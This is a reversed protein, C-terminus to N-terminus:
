VKPFVELIKKYAEEAWVIIGRPMSLALIVFVLGYIINAITSWAGGIYTKMFLHLPQVLFTGLLPGGVTGLGGIMAYLSYFISRAHSFAVGPNIYQHYQVHFVGSLSVFIVSMFLALLKYFTPNVGIAAAAAQNEKIAALYYGIKAKKIWYSVLLALLMFGFSLYYFPLKSPSMMDWFGPKDILPIGIAGHTIGKFYKALYFGIWGIAITAIAFYHGRLVFCPLGIIVAALLSLFIGLFMGLWPTVSFDYLLIASTYAAIGYFVSHGLSFQGAFGGLVNWGIVGAGMLFTIILINVWFPSLIFPFSLLLILAILPLYVKPLRVSQFVERPLM